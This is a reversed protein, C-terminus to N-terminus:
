DFVGEKGSLLLGGKRGKLDDCGSTGLVFLWQKFRCKTSHGCLDKPTNKYEEEGLENDTSSIRETRIGIGLRVKPVM